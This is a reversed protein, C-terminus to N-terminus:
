PQAIVLFDFDVILTLFPFCHHFKHELLMESILKQSITQHTHTACAINKKGWFVRDNHISAAQYDLFPMRNNSVHCKVFHWTRALILDLFYIINSLIFLSPLFPPLSLSRFPSLSFFSFPPFGRLFRAQMHVRVHVCTSLYVCLAGHAM